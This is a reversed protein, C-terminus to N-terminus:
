NGAVRWWHRHHRHPHRYPHGTVCRDQLGGLQRTLEASAAAADLSSVMRPLPILHFSSIHFPYQKVTTQGIDINTSDKALTHCFIVIKKIVSPRHSEITAQKCVRGCFGSHSSLSPSFVFSSFQEVVKM